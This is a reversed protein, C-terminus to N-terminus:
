QGPDPNPRGDFRQTILSNSRKSGAKKTQQAIRIKELLIRILKAKWQSGSKNYPPNVRKNFYMANPRDHDIEVVQVNQQIISCAVRINRPNHRFHGNRRSQQPGWSQIKEENLEGQSRQNLGGSVLLSYVEWGHYYIVSKGCKTQSLISPAVLIVMVALNKENKYQLWTIMGIYLIRTFQM